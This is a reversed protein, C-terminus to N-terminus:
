EGKELRLSGTPHGFVSSHPDLFRAAAMTTRCPIYLWRVSFSSPPCPFRRHHEDRPKEQVTSLVRDFDLALGLVDKFNPTGHGKSVGLVVFSNMTRHLLVCASM